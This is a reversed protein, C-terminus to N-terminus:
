ANGYATLCLQVLLEIFPSFQKGAMGMFRSFQRRSSHGSRKWLHFFQKGVMEM